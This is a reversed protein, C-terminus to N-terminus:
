LLPMYKDKYSENMITCTAIEVKELAEVWFGM